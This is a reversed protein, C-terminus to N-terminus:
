AALEAGISLEMGVDARAADVGGALLGLARCDRMAKEVPYDRMFGHGGLIQVGNPGVFRSAEVADVFASAAAVVASEGGDIKRAADEVLLGVREVAIHMDVILFALAQHHAVPRGFAVRELAYRRSFGAADAVVGWILSAHYLRIRALAQAAASPDRWIHTPRGAYRIRGAGAAHLAAGRVPSIEFGSELLWAGERGIGVLIDAKDCASWPVDGSISCATTAGADPDLVLAMRAKPENVIARVRDNLSGDLAFAEVVYVAPGFRDLALAAGADAEALVRNARVRSSLGLGAGGVHEPLDVAGFGLAEFRERVEASVSRAAEFERLKPRLEEAAFRAITESLIDDAENSAFNM